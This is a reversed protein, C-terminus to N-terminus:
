GQAKELEAMHKIRQNEEFLFDRKANAVRQEIMKTKDSFWVEKFPKGVSCEKSIYTIKSCSGDFIALYYCHSNERIVEWKRHSEVNYLKDGINLKVKSM